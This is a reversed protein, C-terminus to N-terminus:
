FENGNNVARQASKIGLLAILYLLADLKVLAIPSIVRQGDQSKGYYCEPFEPLWINM